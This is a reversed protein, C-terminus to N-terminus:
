NPFGLMKQVFHSFSNANVNTLGTALDTVGTPLQEAELVANLRITLHRRVFGNTTTIIGEVGEEALSSSALVDGASNENIQFGSDDIFNTGASVSLQEVRLLENRAFFISGAVVSSTVVGNALFHDIEDEVSDAFQSVVAGTELTEEDEV